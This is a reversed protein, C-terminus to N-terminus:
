LSESAPAFTGVHLADVGKHTVAKDIDVFFHDALKQVVEPRNFADVGVECPIMRIFHIQFSERFFNKRLDFVFVNEDSNAAISTIAAVYACRWGRLEATAKRDSRGGSLTTLGLM